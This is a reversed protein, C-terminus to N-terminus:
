ETVENDPTVGSDESKSKAAEEKCFKLLDKAYEKVFAMSNSKYIEAALATGLFDSLFKFEINM